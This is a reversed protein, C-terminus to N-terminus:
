LRNDTKPLHSRYVQLATLYDGLAVTEREVQETLNGYAQLLDTTTSYGSKFSVQAQDYLYQGYERQSRALTLADWASTLELYFKRQRLLLMEHYHEKDFEAKDIDYQQRQMKYSNAAWDTLPISFAVFVMGNWRGPTNQFFRNFGYNVGLGIQPLTSGLTLKKEFRKAKVQIDLLRTEALSEVVQNEDVYVEEPTPIGDLGPSVFTFNDLDMVKYKYGMSSLLNMKMLRMGATLKTRGNSLEMKKNQLMLYDSKVIVGEQFAVDAVKELSDLLSQMANLYKEKELLAILGFYNHDTEELVQQETMEAQLKAAAVGLKSYKFGNVIRGGAFIPQVATVGYYQGYQLLDLSATGGNEDAIQQWVNQIVAGVDNNGFINLANISILPRFAHFAMGNISAKPFFNAAVEGTLAQAAKQDLAAKRLENSNQLAIDRCEELTFEHAGQASLMAPVLLLLVWIFKNRKM